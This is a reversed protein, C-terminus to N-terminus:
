KEIQPSKQFNESNYAFSQWVTYYYKAHQWVRGFAMNHLFRNTMCKLLYILFGKSLWWAYCAWHVPGGRHGIDLNWGELNAEEVAAAALDWCELRNPNTEGRRRVKKNTRDM